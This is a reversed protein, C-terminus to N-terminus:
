RSREFVRLERRRLLLRGLGLLCVLVPVAFTALRKVTTKESEDLDKLPRNVVNRSRIAILDDGLSLWDVANLFFTVNARASLLRSSLLSDSIFDSDGLVLIHTAPSEEITEAEPAPAEASDDEPAVAAADQDPLPALASVPADMSPTETATTEDSPQADEANPQAAETDEAPAPADEDSAATEDEAAAGPVPKGAFYSKFRGSLLAGVTVAKQPLKSLAEVDPPMLATEPSDTTFGYATTKVLETMEVSVPKQKSAEVSNAWLFDFSDLRNVIVSDACSEALITMLYPYEMPVLIQTKGSRVPQMVAKHSALDGVVDANIQIGYGALFDGLGTEITAPMQGQVSFDFADLLFVAKGGRMIFQDVAYLDEESFPEKPGAVVLTTVDEPIRKTQALDVTTVTYQKSLLEEIVTYDGGEQEPVMQRYQEPVNLKYLGHEGHGKLFVVKPLAEMTMRRITTTLEYELNALASELSTADALPEFVEKKKQYNLSMGFFINVAQMRDQEYAQVPIERIGLTKAENKDKDDQPDVYEVVVRGKSYSVYEDLVDKVDRKATAMQSPLRSESLYFRITLPDELSSVVDKTAQSITYQKNETLDLRLFESLALRNILVLIAVVAVIQLLTNFGYKITRSRKRIVM